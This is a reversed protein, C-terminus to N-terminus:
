PDPSLSFAEPVLNWVLQILIPKAPWKRTLFCSSFSNGVSSPFHVNRLKKWVCYLASATVTILLAKVKIADKAVHSFLNEGLGAHNRSLILNCNNNYNNNYIIVKRNHNSSCNNERLSNIPHGEVCYFHEISAFYKFHM